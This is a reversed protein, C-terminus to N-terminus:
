LNCKRLTCCGVSDSYAKEMLMEEPSFLLMKWFHITLHTLLLVATAAIITAIVTVTDSISGVGEKM